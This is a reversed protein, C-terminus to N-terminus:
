FALTLGYKDALKKLRSIVEEEPTKLQEIAKDVYSQGIPQQPDIARYFEVDGLSLLRLDIEDEGSKILVSLADRRVGEDEHKILAMCHKNARKSPYNVFILIIFNLVPTSVSKSGLYGAMQNLEHSQPLWLARRNSIDAHGGSLWWLAWTAAYALASSKDLLELLAAILGDVMQAKGRYAAEMIALAAEIALIESKQLNSVQQEMWMGIELEDGSLDLNIFDAVLSCINKRSEGKGQILEMCLKTVLTQKWCSAALEQAAGQWAFYDVELDMNIVFLEVVNLAVKEGVNPEDALCQLALRVRPKRTQKGEKGDPVHLVAFLAMDVVDDNCCSICLRIAERWNETVEFGGEENAVVRGALPSLREGLSSGSDYGPFPGAILALGALYEQFTLHRFEYVPHVHGDHRQEGVEVILGTQAEMVTLFEEPTHKQIARINPFDRRVDELLRIIEDRRLQQVGRDCMAYAIYELQPLAERSDIPTYLESRWNLLVAVAERYLENRRTPLKGVKRKVLAMTTLMMPNGTLREIRDSTHVAEILEKQARPQDEKSETVACWRHIFDDKDEKTLEALVGHEFGQGIRYRMERYGVIRSTVIMPAEPYTDCIRELQACFSARLTPDAIEDLGDILLILRGEALENRLLKLELEGSELEAKQLTRRLIDDLTCSQLCQRDLERCRVVLPLWPQEPLSEIDPMQDFDPNNTLRLLFATAFWRLLTTKGAGPDGLIVLRKSESLRKAVPYTEDTPKGEAGRGANYQQKSQRSQELAQKDESDVELTIRLPVYLQRVQLRKMAMDRDGEPLRNLQIIDCQRLTAGQYKSLFSQKYRSESQQDAQMVNPSTENQDAPNDSWPQLLDILEGKTGNDNELIASQHDPVFRWSNVKDNMALRPWHRLLAQGDKLEIRGASYGHIRQLADGYQELGFLSSGQWHRVDNGGGLSSSRNASEHMHGFLHAAFRGAPNIESYVDERCESNLWDPPQHTMLLCAHHEKVWATGDGVCAAHFQRADWALKQYYDGGDLQLFSTNLGVLGIKLGNKTWTASFDGPLLGHNIVLDGRLPTNQWWHQYNEFAQEILERYESDPDQWLEQQIEPEDDWKKLMRVAAKTPKPRVLDHNGPVALLVPTSGLPALHAWLQDLLENLKDFEEKSGRQVFDGTFLVADWPGSTKHLETLDDFFQDRINPWLHAQGGMGLHLDSLHLWNFAVM